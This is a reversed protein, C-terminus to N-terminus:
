ESKTPEGDIVRVTVVTGGSNFACSKFSGGGVWNGKANWCTKSDQHSLTHTTTITTDGTYPNYSKTVSTQSRGDGAFGATSLMALTSIMIAITKFM